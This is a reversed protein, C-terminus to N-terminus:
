YITESNISFLKHFVTPSLNKHPDKPIAAEQQLQLVLSTLHGFRFSLLDLNYLLDISDEAEVGGAPWM